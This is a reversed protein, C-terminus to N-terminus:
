TKLKVHQSPLLRLITNRLYEIFGENEPQIAITPEFGIKGKICNEAEESRFLLKKLDEIEYFCKYNQGDIQAIIRYVGNIEEDLHCCYCRKMSTDYPYLKGELIMEKYGDDDLYYKKILEEGNIWTPNNEVM